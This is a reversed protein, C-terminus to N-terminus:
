IMMVRYHSLNGAEQLYHNREFFHWQLSKCSVLVFQVSLSSYLRSSQVTSKVNIKAM